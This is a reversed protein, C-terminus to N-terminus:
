VSLCTLILVTIIIAALFYLFTFGLVQLAPKVKKNFVLYAPYGFVALGTVAASFVFIVLMIAMVVVQEQSTMISDMATFFLALLACYIIVGLSQFLGILYPKKM